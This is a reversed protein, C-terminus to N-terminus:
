YDFDEEVEEQLYNIDEAIMSTIREMREKFQKKSEVIKKVKKAILCLLALIVIIAILIIPIDKGEQINYFNISESNSDYLKFFMTYLLQAIERRTIEENGNFDGVAYILNHEVALAISKVAWEPITSYDTFIKIVTNPDEVNQYGKHAALTSALFTVLVERTTLTDGRFTNDEYGTAIGAQYAASIFPYDEQQPSIDSFNSSANSDQMFFLKVLSTVLETRTLPEEPLFQGNSNVKFFGKSVMFNIKEQTDIPLDGIDTINVDAERVVYEGTFTTAFEITNNMKVMGGWNATHQGEIFSFVSATSSSTPLALFISSPIEQTETKGNSEYFTITVTDSKLFNAEFHLTDYSSFIIELDSGSFYIGQGDKGIVVRIGDILTCYTKLYDGHIYFNIDKSLNSGDVLLILTNAVNEATQVNYEDLISNIQQTLEYAGQFFDRQEETGIEIKNWKSKFYYSEMNSFMHNIYNVLTDAGSKNASQEGIAQLRQTLYNAYQANSDYSQYVAPNFYPVPFPVISYTVDGRTAVSNGEYNVNAIGQRMLNLNNTMNENIPIKYDKFLTNFNNYIDQSSSLISAYNESLIMISNGQVDANLSPMVSTAYSVLKEIAFYDSDNIINTDNNELISLLYDYCASGSSLRFYDAELIPLTPESWDPRKIVSVEGNLKVVANGDSFVSAEDYIFEIAISGDSAIYGFKGDLQALAFGETFPTLKQYLLPILVEGKTNILGQEYPWGNEYIDQGVIAYGTSQFEEASIYIAPIVVEGEKNQYGYLGDEKFLIPFENAHSPFYMYFVLLFITLILSYKKM